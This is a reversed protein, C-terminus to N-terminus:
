TLSMFSKEVLKVLRKYKRAAQRKAYKFDAYTGVVIDNHINVLDWVYKSGIDGDDIYREVIKFTTKWTEDMFHDRQPIRVRKGLTIVRRAEM